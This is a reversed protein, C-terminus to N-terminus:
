SISGRRDDGTPTLHGGGLRVEDLAVLVASVRPVADRAPVTVTTISSRM